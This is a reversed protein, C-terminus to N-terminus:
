NIIIGLRDLSRQLRDDVIRDGLAGVFDLDNGALARPRELLGHETKQVTRIDLCFVVPEFLVAVVPAAEEDMEPM